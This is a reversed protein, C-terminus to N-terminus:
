LCDRRNATTTFSQIMEKKSKKNYKTYLKVKKM